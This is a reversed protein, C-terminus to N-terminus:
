IGNYNRFMKTAQHGGLTADREVDRMKKSRFINMQKKYSRSGFFIISIVIVNQFVNRKWNVAVSIPPGCRLIKERM